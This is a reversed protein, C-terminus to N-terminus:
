GALLTEWKSDRTFRLVRGHVIGLPRGEADIAGVTLGKPTHQAPFIVARQSFWALQGDLTGWVDNGNSVAHLTVFTQAAVPEARAASGEPDVVCLHLANDPEGCEGVAYSWGDAGNFANGPTDLPWGPEKFDGGHVSGVFRTQYGGGCEEENAAFVRLTGDEDISVHNEFSGLSVDPFTWTRGADNSVALSPLADAGRDARTGIWALAGAGAAFEKTARAFSLPRMTEHGDATRVHLTGQGRVAFLTGDDGFAAHGVHGKGALVQEFHRGGDRSLLVTSTSWTALLPRGRAAAVGTWVTPTVHGGM